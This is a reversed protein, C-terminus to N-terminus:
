ASTTLGSLTIFSLLRESVVMAAEDGPIAGEVREEPAEQPFHAIIAPRIAMGTAGFIYNIITQSAQRFM